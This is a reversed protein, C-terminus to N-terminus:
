PPTAKGPEKGANISPDHVIKSKGLFKWYPRHVHMIRKLAYRLKKPNARDALREPRSRTIGCMEDLVARISASLAEPQYGGELVLVLKGDCCVRAIEMLTRTMAAFGAPSLKMAGMADDCHNDFGASVLLIQPSFELAMPKLFYEFLGAYEGDGYGGALPINVTAGEAPSLGVETYAGTGPFHPYQHVSFFLVAPDREFIHQTGNGHHVDWDVILIRQLDLRRRAYAAGVAINNFLCYGMARSKEAHHGPPRVLAFAHPVEGTHVRDIAELVGGVALRAARYSDACTHTDATLTTLPKGATAAIRQLHEPAHVRLLERTDAKRPPIMVLRRRIESSELMAYVAQLRRHSEPHGDATRHLLYRSDIVIGAPKM